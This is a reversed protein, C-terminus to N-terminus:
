RAVSCARSCWRRWVRGRRCEVHSPVAKISNRDLYVRRWLGGCKRVCQCGECLEVLVDGGVELGVLVESREAEDAFGGVISDVCVGAGEPATAELLDELRGVHLEGTTAVLVALLIAVLVLRTLLHKVDDVWDELHSALLRLQLESIAGSRALLLCKAHQPVEDNTFIIGDWSRVAVITIM